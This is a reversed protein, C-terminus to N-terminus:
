TLKLFASQFLNWDSVSSSKELRGSGVLMWLDSFTKLFIMFLADFLHMGAPLILSMMGSIGVAVLSFISLRSSNLDVVGSWGSIGLM